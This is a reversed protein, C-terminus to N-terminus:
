RSEAVVLRKTSTRYHTSDVCAALSAVSSTHFTALNFLTPGHPLTTPDPRPTPGHPSTMPDPRPTPGHPLTM